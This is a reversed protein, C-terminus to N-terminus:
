ELSQASNHGFGAGEEQHLIDRFCKGADLCQIVGPQLNGPTFDVRQHTFIARAFARQHFDEGPGGLLIVASDQQIALLHIDARGCLGLSQADAHDM